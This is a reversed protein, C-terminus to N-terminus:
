SRPLVTGFGFAGSRDLGYCDHGWFIVQAEGPSLLLMGSLCGIFSWPAKIM